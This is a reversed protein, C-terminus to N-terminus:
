APLLPFSVEVRLGAGPDNHLAVAGGSAAAVAAVIPLGLGAGGRTRSDSARSFRDLARAVYEPPMGGADDSVSLTVSAAGETLRLHVSGRREDLAHVANTVLNDCVRGFDVVDVAVAREPHAVDDAYEIRIDRGASRVRGRDAADALEDRLTALPARGPARQADLRSLDLLSTALSTLRAVTAEAAAVDERMADITEAQTRALELRTRLIALPTRFEHSADSVIQREREASARLEGILRNLTAALDAIEDRAPGVPLLEDGPADALRAASRRLAAVPRLAATGILWSAAGFALNIGAITAILLWAVERLVEGNDDILTLVIWTGNATDVASSRVLYGDVLCEASGQGAADEALRAAQGAIADPLTNLVVTETPDIVAVFQGPGPRDMEETDDAGIATVYQGEIGELERQQGEQVIRAVQSYLLIGAVVSILLAIALSGGTIRARITLRSPRM